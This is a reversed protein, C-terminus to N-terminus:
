VLFKDAVMNKMKLVPHQTVIRVKISSGMPVVEANPRVLYNQINTTKVKFLVNSMSKNLIEIHACAM